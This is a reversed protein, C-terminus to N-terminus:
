PPRNGATRRIVVKAYATTPPPTWNIKATTDTIASAGASAVAPIRYTWADTARATTTGYKTSVRLIVTGAMHAPTTVNLRTGSVRQYSRAPSTGFRVGTVDIFNAGRVTVHTNGSTVGNDPALATVVPPSIFRYTPGRNTPPKRRNLQVAVH